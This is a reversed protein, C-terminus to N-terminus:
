PSPKWDKGFGLSRCQSDDGICIALDWSPDDILYNPIDTSFSMMGGPQWQGRITGIDESTATSTTGSAQAQHGNQVAYVDVKTAVMDNWPNRVSIDAHSHDTYRALSVNVTRQPFRDGAPNEVSYSYRRIPQTLAALRNQALSAFQGHPFQRLYDEFDVRNASNAISQWFVVEPSPETSNKSRNIGILDRELAQFVNLKCNNSNQLAAALDKQLVGTSRESHYQETGSLGLNMIRGVLGGLKAQADASLTNGSATQELPVSECIEAATDTIMKLAESVRTDAASADMSGLVLGGLTLVRTTADIVKGV